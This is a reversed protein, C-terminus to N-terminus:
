NISEDIMERNGSIGGSHIVCIRSDRPFYGKKIEEIVGYVMKGTYVKDLEIGTHNKFKNMFDLLTKNTKGYGGFHYDYFFSLHKDSSLNRIFNEIENLSKMKLSSFGILKQHKNLNKSLGAMMTGTGISCCIHTFSSPILDIIESAGKIGADGSGGEPVQYYGSFVRSAIENRNESFEKRSLFHLQMNKNVLDRLVPSFIEPKEGRIIAASPIGAQRCVEAAALLHNSWAGGFSVMGRYDKNEMERLHYKLKFWKNGSIEPHIQDLRLMSIAAPLDTFESIDLPQIIAKSININFLLPNLM